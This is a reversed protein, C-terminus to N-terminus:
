LNTITLVGRYRGPLTKPPIRIQLVPKLSFIEKGMFSPTVNVLVSKDLTGRFTRADGATITAGDKQSIVEPKGPIITLASAPISGRGSVARFDSTGMYANWPTDKHQIFIMTGIGKTTIKAEDFSFDQIPFAIKENPVFMFNLDPTASIDELVQPTSELAEILIKDMDIRTTKKETAIKEVYDSNLIFASLADPTKPLDDIFLNRLKPMSQANEPTAEMETDPTASLEKVPSSAANSIVKEPGLEAKFSVAFLGDPLLGPLGLFDTIEYNHTRGTISDIYTFNPIEENTPTISIVVADNDPGTRNSFALTTNDGSIEMYDEPEINRLETLYIVANNFVLKGRWDKTYTKPLTLNRLNGWKVLMTYSNAVKPRLLAAKLNRMNAEGFQMSFTGILIALTLFSAPKILKEMNKKITAFDPFTILPSNAHRPLAKAQSKKSAFLVCATLVMLLTLFTRAPIFIRMGILQKQIGDNIYLHFIGFDPKPAYLLIEKAEGPKILVQGPGPETTILNPDDVKEEAARTVIYLKDELINVSEFSYDTRYDTNGTNKVKLNASLVSDEEGTSFTTVRNESVPDGIINLYVRIGKEITITEDGTERIIVAGTHKGVGANSPITFDVRIIKSEGSNLDLTKVPLSIWGAIDESKQEPSKAMYNQSNVYGADSVYITLHKTEPGFNSVRLGRQIKAGPNLDETFWDGAQSEASGFDKLASVDLTGFNYLSASAPQALALLLTLVISAKNLIKGSQSIITKKM